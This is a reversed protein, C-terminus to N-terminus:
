SADILFAMMFGSLVFFFWAGYSFREDFVRFFTDSKGGIREVYCHAHYLVVAM